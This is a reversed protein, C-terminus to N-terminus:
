VVGAVTDGTVLAVVACRVGVFAFRPRTSIAPRTRVCQISVDTLACSSIHIVRALRVNLFAARPRALIARKAEVQYIQVRTLTLIPECAVFALDVDVLASRPWTSDAAAASVFSAWVLESAYARITPFPLETFSVDRLTLGPRTSM